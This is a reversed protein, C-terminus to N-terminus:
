RIMSLGYGIRHQGYEGVQERYYPIEYEYIGMFYFVGRDPPTIIYYM